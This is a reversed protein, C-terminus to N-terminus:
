LLRRNNSYPNQLIRPSTEIVRLLLSDIYDELDALRRKKDNVETQLQLAM